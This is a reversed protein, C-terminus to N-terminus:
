RGGPQAIEAAGIAEPIEKVVRETIELLELCLASQAHEPRQAFAVGCLPQTDSLRHMRVGLPRTLQYSEPVLTVGRGAAILGFVMATSSGSGGPKPVFGAALCAQNTAIAVATGLGGAYYVFPQDSLDALDLPEDPATPFSEPVVAVLRETYLLTVDLGDSEIPPRLIACDIKGAALERELKRTHGEEIEVSIHPHAQCFEAMVLPLLNEVVSEVSGITLSTTDHLSARMTENYAIEAAGLTRRAERLLAQGAPTLNVTRTDREFLEVQLSEELSRIQRTLPPQSMFLREAARTFHLEEAVAVFLELQRLTFPATM